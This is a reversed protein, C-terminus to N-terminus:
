LEVGDKNKRPSKAKRPPKPAKEADRIQKLVSPKEGASREQERAATKDYAFVYFYDNPLTTCRIFFQRNETELKFGYHNGGEGQIEAEPHKYCYNASSKYDKLIEQRLTDIVTQFEAKFEPTNKSSDSDFWNHWFEDGRKGFDGRLHGVCLNGDEDNRYFMKSEDATGPLVVGLRAQEIIPATEEYAYVIFRADRMSEGLFCQTYYQRTDTELQFGYRKYNDGSDLLAEPHSECYLLMSDYDKLLDQRLAYVASHLETQFEPTVGSWDQESKTKHNRWGSHFRDGSNGFDGAIHGVCTNGEERNYTYFKEDGAAFPTLEASRLQELPEYRAGIREMIEAFQCAHFEDGGRGLTRFHLEDLYKCARTVPARGDEPPYTIKISGGDPVQFLEKYDSDIFRITKNDSM